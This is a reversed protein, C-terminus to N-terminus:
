QRAGRGTVAAKQGGITETSTIEFFILLVTKLKQKRQVLSKYWLVRM